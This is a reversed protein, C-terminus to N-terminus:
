QLTAMCVVKINSISGGLIFPFFCNPCALSHYRVIYYYLLTFEAFQLFVDTVTVEGEVDRSYLLIEGPNFWIAINEDKVLM